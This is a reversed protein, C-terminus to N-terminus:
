NLYEENQYFFSSIMENISIDWCKCFLIINIIFNFLVDKVQEEKVDDNELINNLKNIFYVFEGITKNLSINNAYIFSNLNDEKKSFQFNLKLDKYREIESEFFSQLYKFKDQNAEGLMHYVHLLLSSLIDIFENKLDEETLKEESFTTKNRLLVTKGDNHSVLNYLYCLENIQGTLNILSLSALHISKVDHKINLFIHNQEFEKFLTFTYNEKELYKKLNLEFDNAVINELDEERNQNEIEKNKNNTM